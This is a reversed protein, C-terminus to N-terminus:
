TASHQQPGPSIAVIAVTVLCRSFTAQGITHRQGDADVVAVARDADDYEYSTLVGAAGEDSELNGRDSWVLTVDTALPSTVAALNGRADYQYDWRVGTADRLWSLRGDDTYGMSYRADSGDTIATLNQQEDWELHIYRGQRDKLSTLKWRDDPDWEYEM